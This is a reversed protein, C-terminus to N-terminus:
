NDYLLQAHQHAGTINGGTINGGTGSIHLSQIKTLLAVKGEFMLRKEISSVNLFGRKTTRFHM